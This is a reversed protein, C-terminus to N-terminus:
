NTPFCDIKDNNIGLPLTAGEVEEGTEVGVVIIQRTMEIAGESNIKIAAAAVEITRTVVAVGTTTKIDVAVVTIVKTVVAITKTVVRTTKTIGEEEM